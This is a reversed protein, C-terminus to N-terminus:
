IPVNKSAARQLIGQGEKKLVCLLTQSSELIKMYAAESEAITRDYENRTALKKQLAENVRHLKETLINIERQLKAKEAEDLSILRQIEERRKCLDEFCKVLENNYNQLAAGQQSM